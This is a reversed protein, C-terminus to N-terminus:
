PLEQDYNERPVVRYLCSETFFEPWEELRDDDIAEVYAHLLEEVADRLDKRDMIRKSLRDFSLNGDARRLCLSPPHPFKSIPDRHDRAAGAADAKGYTAGETSFTGLHHERVDFDARQFSRHLEEFRLADFGDADGRVDRVVRGELAQGVRRPLAEPSGVDDHVVCADGHEPRDLLHRGVIPLPRDVHVEPSRDVADLDEERPHESLVFFAVHDERRAEGAENRIAVEPGVVDRLCGDD